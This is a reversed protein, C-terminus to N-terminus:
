LAGSSPVSSPRALGERAERVLEDFAFGNQRKVRHQLQAYVDLTMKSDAHGVQNMVWLVDFNNALLAISIYTRRLTHPTVRPLPPFGRRQMQESAVAAADGLIKAARQRSLRGGRTNPFAWAEPDAPYGARRLRDLHIVLDEVLDPTVQVSRIGAETKADVIQFRAGNPDHLRIHGIRLDCLESIRVGSRGLTTVIARHGLYPAPQIGLQHLHYSVTSKALGLETAIDKSRKGAIYLRRIEARAGSGDDDGDAPTPVVQADLTTAADELCALEDIELFSRKPKPVHVRMRRSRAPNTVIHGDEVAEDLVSVLATIFKKLSAPGIPVRRRGRHDRIVAGAQIAERLEQSERLKHAKFALCMERDIEDLRYSGFFPLLHLNLRWKYDGYTSASLPKDGLVGDRKAELWDAAYDRFIPMERPQEEVRTSAKEPKTWIGAKIRALINDLEVQATRENWGGGCGCTCHRREHLYANERKGYARFRLRYVETGDALTTTLITGSATRGM